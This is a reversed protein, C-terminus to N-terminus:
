RSSRATPRSSRTSTASGPTSSCTARRPAREPALEEFVVSRPERMNSPDYLREHPRRVVTEVEHIRGDRVGLRIFVVSPRDHEDVM